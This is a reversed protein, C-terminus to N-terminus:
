AYIKKNYPAGYYPETSNRENRDGMASLMVVPNIVLVGNSELGM